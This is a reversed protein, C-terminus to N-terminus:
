ALEKLLRSHQKDLGPSKFENLMILYEKIIQRDIELQLRAGEEVNALLTLSETKLSFRALM